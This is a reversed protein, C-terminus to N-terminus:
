PRSLGKESFLKRKAFYNKLLEREAVLFKNPSLIEKSLEM